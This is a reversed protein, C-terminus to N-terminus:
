DRVREFLMSVADDIEHTVPAAPLPQSQSFYTEWQYDTLTLESVSTVRRELARRRETFGSPAGLNGRRREVGKRRESSDDLPLKVDAPLEAGHQLLLHVIDRHHMKAAIRIPGGPGDANAANVNAGRRILEETIATHGKFCAIRLPLGTDGHMDAEEIDAGYELAALVAQLNGREIARRLASHM